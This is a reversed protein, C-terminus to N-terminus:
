RKGARHVRDMSRAAFSPFRAATPPAAVHRVVRFQMRSIKGRDQPASAARRKDWISNALGALRPKKSAGAGAPAALEEVFLRDLM